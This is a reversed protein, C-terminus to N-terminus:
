GAGFRLFMGAQLEQVNPSFPLVDEMASNAAPIFSRRRM